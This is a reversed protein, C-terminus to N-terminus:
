SSDISCSNNSINLYGSRLCCECLRFDEPSSLLKQKIKIKGRHNELEFYTSNNNTIIRLYRTNNSIKTNSRIYDSKYTSTNIPSLLIGKNNAISRTFM